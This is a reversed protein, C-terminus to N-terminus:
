QNNIEKTSKWVINPVEIQTTHLNIEKYDAVKGYVREFWLKVAWQKKEKIAEYLVEFVEDSYKSLRGVLDREVERKPRGAGIRRGGHGAM